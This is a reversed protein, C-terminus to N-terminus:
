FAVMGGKLFHLFLQFLTIWKNLLYSYISHGSCLLEGVNQPPFWALRYHWCQQKTMKLKSINNFNLHFFTWKSIFKSKISAATIEPWSSELLQGLLVPLLGRVLNYVLSPPSPGYYVPFIPLAPFYYYSPLLASQATYLWRNINAAIACNPLKAAACCDINTTASESWVSSSPHM